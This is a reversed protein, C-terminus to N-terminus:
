LRWLSIAALFQYILEGTVSLLAQKEDEGFVNSASCVYQGNKSPIADEVSLISYQLNAEDSLIETRLFITESDKKNASVFSWTVNIPFEGTVICSFNVSHKRDLSDRAIMQEQPRISLVSTSKVSFFGIFSYYFAVSTNSFM